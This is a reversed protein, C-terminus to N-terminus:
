PVQRLTAVLREALEPDASDLTIRTNGHEVTITSPRSRTARWTVYALALNALQFGSDVSLQILDFGGGMEGLRPPAHRLDILASSRIADDDRLWHAFSRLAHEDSYESGTGNRDVLVRIKYLEM